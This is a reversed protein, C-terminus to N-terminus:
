TAMVMHDDFVASIPDSDKCVVVPVKAWGVWREVQSRGVSRTSPVVQNGDAGTTYRMKIVVGNVHPRGVPISRVVDIRDTAAVPATLSERFEEVIETDVRDGHILGVHVNKVVIAVSVYPGFGTQGGGGNQAPGVAHGESQVKFSVTRVYRHRTKRSGIKLHCVARNRPKGGCTGSLVGQGQVSGAEASGGSKGEGGTGGIVGLVTTVRFEHM